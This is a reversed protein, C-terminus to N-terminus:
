GAAKTADPEKFRQAHYVPESHGSVLWDSDRGSKDRVHVLQDNGSVICYDASRADHLEAWIEAADGEDSAEIWRGEEPGSHHDDTWVLYKSM